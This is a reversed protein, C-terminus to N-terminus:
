SAVGDSEFAKIEGHVAVMIRDIIKGIAEVNVTQTLISDAGVMVGDADQHFRIVVCAIVDGKILFQSASMLDTSVEKTNSKEWPRDEGVYDPGLEVEIKKTL